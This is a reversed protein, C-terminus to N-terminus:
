ELAALMRGRLEDDSVQADIYFVRADAEAHEDAGAYSRTTFLVIPTQADKERVRRVLDEAKAFDVDALVADYGYDVQKGIRGMVQDGNEMFIFHYEDKLLECVKNYLEANRAGFVVKPLRVRATPQKNQRTVDKVNVVMYPEDGISVYHGDINVDMDFRHKDVAYFEMCAELGEFDDKREFSKNIVFRVPCSKCAIGTGCLGSDCATTCRLVNGLVKPEAEKLKSNQAYFNTEKVEFKRNVLFAYSSLNDVLSRLRSNDTSIRRNRRYLVIAVGAVILALVLSYIAYYIM